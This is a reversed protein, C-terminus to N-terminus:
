CKDEVVSMKSPSDSTLNNTTNKDIYSMNISGKKMSRSLDHKRGSKKREKKLDRNLIATTFVQESMLRKTSLKKFNPMKVTSRM